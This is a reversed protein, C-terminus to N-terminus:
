AFLYTFSFSFHLSIRLSTTPKSLSTQQFSTPIPFIKINYTLLPYLFLYSSAQESYAWLLLNNQHLYNLITYIHYYYVHILMKLDRYRVWKRKMKLDDDYM